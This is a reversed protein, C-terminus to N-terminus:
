RSESRVVKEALRYTRVSDFSYIALALWILGFSIFHTSTVPERFWFIGLLLSLSPGIYQLLGITILSLRKTGYAFLILPLTTIPGTGILLLMTAFSSTFHGKGSLGFWVLGLLVLPCLIATELFLGSTSEYSSSKKRAAYASFTLALGLAILPVKGIIVVQVLVGIAALAIAFKQFTTTRDKFLLIGFGTHFLPTLFYGLSAEVVQNSVVAWIYILGNSAMLVGCTTIILMNRRDKLLALTSGLKGAVVVLLLSSLTTWWLRHLVMEFAPVNSLMAWYVPLLGWIVYTGGAALLAVKKSQGDGSNLSVSQNTVAFEM